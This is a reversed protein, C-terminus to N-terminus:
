SSKTQSSHARGRVTRVKVRTNQTPSGPSPAQPSRVEAATIQPPGNKVSEHLPKVVKKSPRAYAALPEAQKWLFDFLMSLSEAVRENRIVLTPTQDGRKILPLMVVERDFIALKHPVEGDYVRAEEGGGVWTDLYPKVDPHEIAAREYLGRFRVGRRQAKLQAPNEKNRPILVPAKIIADVQRKAELQLRAFREAIAQPSRIVQVLEESRTETSEALSSLQAGLQTALKERRSVDEKDQIVLSPLAKDPPVISFRSGNGAGGQVLGKDHLSNLTFYVSSRPFGTVSAIARGGLAGNRVLALYVQSEAPLLGLEQLESHFDKV